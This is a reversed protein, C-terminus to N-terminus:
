SWIYLYTSKDQFSIDKWNYIDLVILFIIIISQILLINTWYLNKNTLKIVDQTITM